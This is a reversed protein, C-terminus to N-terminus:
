CRHNSQEQLQCKALNSLFQITTENKLPLEISQAEATKSMLLSYMIIVHHKM